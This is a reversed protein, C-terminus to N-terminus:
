ASEEAENLYRLLEKARPLDVDNSLRALETFPEDWEPSAYIAYPGGRRHLMDGSQGHALTFPM